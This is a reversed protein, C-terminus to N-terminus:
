EGELRKDRWAIAARLGETRLIELFVRKDDSGEGEIELDIELAAELAEGLGMIDYTRNIARKTRQVVMPDMAAM